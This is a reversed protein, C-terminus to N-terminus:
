KHTKCAHMLYSPYKAIGGSLSSCLLSVTVRDDFEAVAVALKRYQSVAINWMQVLNCPGLQRYWQCALLDQQISNWEEVNILAFGGDKDTPIAVWSSCALWDRAAKEIQLVNSFRRGTKTAKSLATHPANLVCNNLNYCICNVEPESPKVRPCKRPFLLARPCKRGRDESNKFLARWKIKNIAEGVNRVVAELGPLKDIIYCHKQHRFGLLFCLPWPM